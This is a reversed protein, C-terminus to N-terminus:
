IGSNLENILWYYRAWSCMNGRDWVVRCIIIIYQSWMSLFGSKISAILLIWGSFYIFSYLHKTTAHCLSVMESNYRVNLIWIITFARSYLRVRVLLIFFLPHVQLTKKVSDKISVITYIIMHNVKMIIWRDLWGIDGNACCWLYIYEKFITSIREVHYRIQM